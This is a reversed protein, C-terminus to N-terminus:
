YRGRTRPQDRSFALQSGPVEKKSGLDQGAISRLDFPALPGEHRTGPVSSPEAIALEDDEFLLRVIRIYM